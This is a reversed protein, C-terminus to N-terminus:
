KYWWSQFRPNPCVQPQCEGNLILLSWPITQAQSKVGLRYLNNDKIFATDSIM